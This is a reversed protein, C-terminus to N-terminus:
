QRWWRWVAVVVVVEMIAKTMRGGGDCRAKAAEVMMAMTMM